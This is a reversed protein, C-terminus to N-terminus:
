DALVAQPEPDPESELRESESIELPRFVNWYILSSIAITTAMILFPTTFDGHDLMRSGFWIAIASVAGGVAMELGTNTAREKADLVSMNFADDLPSTLRYIGVRGVYAAGSLVLLLLGEGLMFPLLGMALVFPISLVRTLVIADVKLMRAAILPVFITAVALTMEAAAFVIGVQGESAHIHGQDAHFVVNFLPAIMSFGAAIISSTLVFYFIRRWHTVGSFIQAFNFRGANAKAAPGPAVRSASDFQLEPREESEESRLMLAPILSLAWLTLGAYAAYRYASVLGIDDAFFAPVSGAILAGTMASLTRFSGAVAFLHVREAPKSNEAMFAPEATHHMNGFFSAFVPTVLLITESSSNIVILGIVAGIGDGLIFSAKRGIRDSLLGAPLATAASSIFQVVLRTGIFAIDFGVALLYLNLLVNYSGHIMDMGIVHIIYLNANRSFQRTKDRYDTVFRTVPGRADAAEESRATNRIDSSPRLESESM